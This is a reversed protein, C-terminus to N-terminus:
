NLLIMLSVNSNIELKMTGHISHILIEKDVIKDDEKSEFFMEMILKM